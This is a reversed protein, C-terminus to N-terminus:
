AVAAAMAVAAQTVSAEDAKSTRPATGVRVVAEEMEAVRAGGSVTAAVKAVLRAVMREAMGAGKTAAVAEIVTAKCVASWAAM